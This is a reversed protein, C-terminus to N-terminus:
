APRATPGARRRAAASGPSRSGSRGRCSTRGARGRSTGPRAAAPPAPRRPRREGAPHREGLRAEAAVDHRMPALASAARRAPMSTCPHGRQQDIHQGADGRRDGADDDGAPEARAAGVGGHAELELHDGGHHQAAGCESPPRPVMMPVTSPASVMATMPLPRIRAWMEGNKVWITVPRIMRSAIQSLVRATRAGPASRLASHALERRAM